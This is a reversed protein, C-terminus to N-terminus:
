RGPGPCRLCGPERHLVAKRGAAPEAQAQPAGLPQAIFAMADIRPRPAPRAHRDRAPFSGTVRPLERVIRIGDLLLPMASARRRTAARAADSPNSPVVAPASATATVSAAVFMTFCAVRPMTSGSGPPRHGARRPLPRVLCRDRCGSGACLCARRASSQRFPPFPSPERWRM